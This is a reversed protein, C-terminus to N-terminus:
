WQVLPDLCLPCDIPPLACPSSSLIQDNQLSALFYISSSRPTTTSSWPMTLFRMQGFTRMEMQSKLSCTLWQHWVPVTIGLSSHSLSCNQELVSSACTETGYVPHSLTQKIIWICSGMFAFLINSGNKSLQLFIGYLQYLVACQHTIIIFMLQFHSFRSKWHSSSFSPPSNGQLKTIMIVLNITEWCQNIRSM